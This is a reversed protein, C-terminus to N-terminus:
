PDEVYKFGYRGEDFTFKDYQALETVAAAKGGPQLDEAAGFYVVEDYNSRGAAQIGDCNTERVWEGTLERVVEAIRNVQDEQEENSMNM